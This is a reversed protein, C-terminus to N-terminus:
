GRQAVTDAFTRIAARGCRNNTYVNYGGCFVGGAFPMVKVINVMGRSGFQAMLRTGVAQLIEQLVTTPVRKIVNIALRAGIKLGAEKLFKQVPEGALCCFIMARVREDTIDHGYMLAIASIMNVQTYLCLLADAPITVAMAIGGPLGTVFGTAGVRMTQSRVLARSAAFRDNNNERLFRDRLEAPPALMPGVLPGVIPADAFPNKGSLIHDLVTNAANLIDKETM